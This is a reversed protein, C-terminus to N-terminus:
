KKLSVIIWRKVKMKKQEATLVGSDDQEYKNVSKYVVIAKYVVGIFSSHENNKYYDDQISTIESLTTRINDFTYIKNSSFDKLEIGCLDAGCGYSILKVNITKKTGVAQSYCENSILLIVFVVLIRKM